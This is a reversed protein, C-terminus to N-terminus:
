PTMLCISISFFLTSTSIAFPTTTETSLLTTKASVDSRAADIGALYPRTCLKGDIIPLFIREECLSLFKKDQTFLLSNRTKKNKKKMLAKKQTISATFSTVSFSIYTLTSNIM